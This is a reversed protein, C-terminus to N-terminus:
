FHKAMRDLNGDEPIHEERITIFIMETKEKGGGNMGGCAGLAVLIVVVFVYYYKM